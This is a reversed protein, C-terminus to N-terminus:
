SVSGVLVPQDAPEAVASAMPHRRRGPSSMACGLILWVLFSQSSPRLFILSGDSEVLGRALVAFIAWSVAGSVVPDRVLLARRLAPGYALLSTALLAIGIFGYALVLQLAWNHVGGSLTTGFPHPAFAWGRVYSQEVGIGSPLGGHILELAGRWLDARGRLGDGGVEVSSRLQWVYVVM